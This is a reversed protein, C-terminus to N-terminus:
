KELERIRAVADIDDAYVATPLMLAALMAILCRDSIKSSM